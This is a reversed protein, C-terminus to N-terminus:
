YIAVQASIDSNVTERIYVTKRLELGGLCLIM